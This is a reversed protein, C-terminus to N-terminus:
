DFSLISELGQSIEPAMVNERLLNEGKSVSWTHTTTREFM